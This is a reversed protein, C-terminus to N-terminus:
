FGIVLTLMVTGLFQPAKVKLVGEFEIWVWMSVRVYKKNKSQASNQFVAFYSM